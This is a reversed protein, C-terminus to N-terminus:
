GYDDYPAFRGKRCRYGGEGRGYGGALILAGFKSRPIAEVVARTIRSQDDHIRQEAQPPGSLTYRMSNVPEMSEAGM